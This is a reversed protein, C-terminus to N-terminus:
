AQMDEHFSAVIKLMQSSVGVEAFRVMLCAKASLWLGKKFWCLFTFLLEQHEQAKDLLQQAMFIIGCCGRGKQFGCQSEPLIDKAIHKLRQQIAWAFLIAVVDLLSIGHWNDSSQLDGRKPVPVVEADKWAAVVEGNRGNDQMLQLLRGWWVPSCCLLLESLVGTKGSTNHRSLQLSISAVELKKMFPPQWM